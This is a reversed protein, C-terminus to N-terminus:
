FRGFVEAELFDRMRARKDDDGFRDLVWGYDERVDVRYDLTPAAIAPCYVSHITFSWALDPHTLRCVPGAALDAADFLYLQRSCGTAAGTPDGVQMLAVVYGDTAPDVGAPVGEPRRRPLFQLSQLGEHAACRYHDVIRMRGVDVRALCGPIGHRHYELLEEPPVLTREADYDAYLDYVFKTLVEGDLGDFYQFVQRVRDPRREIGGDDRYTHLAAGWTHPGIPTGIADDTFGKEHFERTDVVEGTRADIVHKGVRSIDMVSTTMLGIRDPAPPRDPDIALRDFPRVWEGGCTASNHGSYLTIRDDPNRYDLSFHITEYPITCAVARVETGDDTLDARRILYCPTVPRVTHALIKRLLNNLRDHHGFPLSYILDLSQKITSDSVLLYDETLEMQHVTQSIAVPVGTKDDLVRWSKLEAGRWRVVRLDSLLPPSDPERYRDAFQEGHKQANKEGVFPVFQRVADLLGDATLDRGTVWDAFSSLEELLFGGAVRLGHDWGNGFMLNTLSKRYNVAFVEHTQPDFCPHATCYIQPFVHEMEDPFQQMWEEQTGIPTVPELTVPDILYPRGADFTVALHVPDAPRFRFGLLATNVQNRTGLDDHMRTLGKSTFHLGERYYDTGYRTAHDAHFCPTRLLRSKVDVRGTQHFDFRYLMGDGNANTAAHEPCPSGDPWDRPAPTEYNVTGAVSNVFVHGQLDTPLTGSLLHLRRDLERRSGHNRPYHRPNPM